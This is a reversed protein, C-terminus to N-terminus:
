IPMEDGTKRKRGKARPEEVAPVALGHAIAFSRNTRCAERVREPWYVMAQQSWDYKGAELEKWAVRTEPWSPLIEHLPAANLLVGDDIHPTYGREAIMKLNGAFEALDDALDLARELEKAAKKDKAARVRLDAIEREALRLRPAVIDTRIHFLTDTLFREHFIWVTYNKKPSQLPWYVPRKRYLQFHYRWFSGTPQGTFRDFWNGLLVVSEGEGLAARVKARAEDTGLMSGMATWVRTAIDLPQGRDNVLVGDLATLAQLKTNDEKTFDGQGLGGAKGVEFRGLVAGIAYSIWNRAEKGELNAAIQVEIDDEDEGGETESDDGSEDSALETELIEAVLTEKESLGYLGLGIQDLTRSVAETDGFVVGRHPAVFQPATEDAARQLIAASIISRACEELEQKKNSFPPIPLLDVGGKTQNITPCLIRMVYRVASSRLISFLPLAHEPGPFVAFGANSCISGADLFRAVFGKPCISSWTIGQECYLAENHTCWATNGKLYPYKDLLFRKLERGNDQWNVVHYVSSLNREGVGGKAYHFWKRPSSRCESATAAMAITSSLVEWHLRCFRKNGSTKLGSDISYLTSLKPAVRFLTREADDTWYAWPRGPIEDFDKQVHRFVLSHDNGNRLAALATDFVSRKAEADRERVLRFYVATNDNRRIDDPERRFVFAATQLTGPNGVSFLGGGFHALTQISLNGRLDRRLDEYSSIFMFSHMTLMGMFGNSDLLEACRQIFGAYLDGKSHPYENALLTALRKNMKRSSLYPPNTAVVDYHHQVLGLFRLGKAAEGVFHSDDRGSERSSRVFADLREVIEDALSAFFRERADPADMSLRDSEGFGPLIEANLDVRRREEEILRELDREARLLSGLNDSDKLRTAMSRLIREHIPQPFGAGRIMGDLRGGTITEVNCCALNRDTFTARPNLNRAKILLTLASLQVARMDLDIGHINNAVISTPIDDATVVSATEPWGPRGANELEEQYMEVFLDFAVLGFHMSGCAPDLFTVDRVRKMPRATAVEPPVFYALSAKMRSNPHMEIWLRGLTNEILFQVVWRITFLQTVAPIDEPEFMQGQERANAFAAQLEEANFAQYVWGITEENGQKWANTIAAPDDPTASEKDIATVLAKLAPPRPCLRTALTAPDFLVSIERALEGCQWLLFRRYATHRPGEGMANVPTEGQDHMQRAAPDKDDALWFLYANSEALRSVTAKILRREEMMRFAVFRNLWTFATERVLKRRAVTPDFGADKEAAAYSELMERTTRAEELQQLAPYGAPPAFTGDPLWGYLGELQQGAERELDHRAALTFTQVAAILKDNM